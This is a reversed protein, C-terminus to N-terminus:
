FGTNEMGQFRLRSCGPEVGCSQRQCSCSLLFAKAAGSFPTLFIYTPKGTLFVRPSPSPDMM